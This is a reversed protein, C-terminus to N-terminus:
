CRALAKPPSSCRTSGPTSAACSASPWCMSGASATTASIPTSAPTSAQLWRSALEKGLAKASHNLMDPASLHIIDPKFDRIDRKLRDPLRGFLPIRRPVSHAGVAGLRAHRGASVGPDDSTPSYVRVTCGERELFAVLRNLAQNSDMASMTTIARSCRSACRGRRPRRPISNPCAIPLRWRAIRWCRHHRQYGLM